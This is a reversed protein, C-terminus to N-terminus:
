ANPILLIKLPYDWLDSFWRRRKKTLAITLVLNNNIKQFYAGIAFVRFRLTSLTRQTKEQLVFMRFISMLNYAIVVFILAAETAWFDKMNFADFGFDYKIEKIRNEADGRGRYLRWVESPAYDINTFYASYRYNKYEEMEPFLSLTKGTAQPRVSIKQRVIVLRRAKGWSEAQYEKECIEIGEDIHLWAENGAILYQIPKYFKAAIIYNYPKNELYDMIEGSCFGSDLRILSVKKCELKELTNELFLLFNNSASTDGSRLWFNAVIRMDNIFAILPHHSARGKKQPNYGKKAGEQQGYRTLVSSDIDLTFNDFQYNGILWKFFYDSVKINTTSTFKSFFRKYADQGPVGRDWGFIKALAPDCRTNETHLFRTAGCWISCIYAEILTTLSYGRNSGPTPINEYSKIAESFKIQELFQKLFVMGGWPTVEKNTFQYLLEMVKDERDSRM